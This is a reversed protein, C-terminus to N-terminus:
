EAGAASSKQLLRLETGQVVFQAAGCNMCVVIDTSVHVHPKALGERGTFHLAIKGGFQCLNDSGCSKCSM